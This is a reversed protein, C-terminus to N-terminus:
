LYVSITDRVPTTFAFQRLRDLAELSQVVDPRLTEFDLIHNLAPTKVTVFLMSKTVRPEMDPALLPGLAEALPEANRTVVALECGIGKFKHILRVSSGSYLPPFYIWSGDRGVVGPEKMGLQPFENSAVMWYNRYFAIMPDDPLKTYGTRHDTVACEFVHRKFAHQPHVSLFDVIREYSLSVDVHRKHEPELTAFYSGPSMLVVRFRDWLGKEVGAAGRMRYREFQRDMVVARVKNEILIGCRGNDGAVVLEIDTEGLSTEAVSRRLSRIDIDGSAEGAEEVILKLFDPCSHLLDMALVDTVIEDVRLITDFSLTTM